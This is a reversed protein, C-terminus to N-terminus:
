RDLKMGILVPFRLSYETSGLPRSVEQFKVTMTKGIYASPCRSIVERDYDSLGTGVEGAVLKGDYIGKYSISGVMNSYKGSGPIIDTIIVDTEHFLKFKVLNKDRKNSHVIDPHRLVIGEYGAAVYQKTVNMIASLENTVRTYMVPKIHKYGLEKIKDLYSLMERTSSVSGNTALFVNYKIKDKIEPLDYKTMVMGQIEQFNKGPIYLEGDILNVDVKKVLDRLEDVIATMGFLSKGSRALLTDNSYVARIGDMKPSGYWYSVGYKIEPSYTSALQVEFTPIFDGYAKNITGSGIGCRLDRTLVKAYVESDPSGLRNFFEQIRFKATDGTIKRDNLDMFLEYFEDISDSMPRPPIDQNIRLFDLNKIYSNLYPNYTLYLIKDLVDSKNAKLIDVKDVISNTSALKSIVNYVAYPRSM